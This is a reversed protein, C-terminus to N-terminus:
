TIEQTKCFRWASAVSIGLAAALVEPSSGSRALSLGIANRLSSLVATQEVGALNRFRRFVLQLSRAGVRTRRTTVFLPDDPGLDFPVAGLYRSLWYAAEQSVAAPRDNLHSSHVVVASLNPKFDGQNLGVLEATTLGSAAAVHVAACDRIHTWADDCDSASSSLIMEISDQAIPARAVRACPPFRSSLVKSCDYTHERCLFRAFTRLCSFRRYVTSAATGDTNWTAAIRDIVSQGIRTIETVGDGGVAAAIDRLDREYCDITSASAGAQTLSSLWIASEPEFPLKM